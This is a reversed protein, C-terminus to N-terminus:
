LTTASELLTLKKQDCDIEALIGYPLIGNPFAHGININYLIPCEKLGAEVGVADMLAQKYEHYYKEQMPKGFVLGNIVSLIGQAHLNRFIQKIFDPTPFDESTELFVISGRWEELSPWLKTGMVMPFVDICGGLLHGTVKGSGQLIEYGYRDEELRKGQDMNEEKWPILDRSWVKSSPIEYGKSDDFLLKEVAKVTYDFMNVYEGFECMVSPGYFSTVGAKFFMLHNVTTDSYGMFVKPNQSIIEFDIYPLIRITDDGGIASFIGKISPDKIAMMLDQARKEPHHYVYDSGKLAHPMVIVELGFDKELREKAIHFKHILLEDGLGGWSLSVIAIKDGAMLRNPKIMTKMDLVGIWLSVRKFKIMVM